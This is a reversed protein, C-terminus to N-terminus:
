SSPRKATPQPLESSGRATGHSTSGEVSDCHKGPPPPTDPPCKFLGGTRGGFHEGTRLPNLGVSFITGPPFSNVTIGVRASAAARDMEVGWVVPEGDEGRFVDDRAENMPVFYIQLHNADPNVRTVVGTFVLVERQDYMAFSHHSYAPVAIFLAAMVGAVGRARFVKGVRM